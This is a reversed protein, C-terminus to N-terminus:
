LNKVHLKHPKMSQTAIAFNMICHKVYIQVWFTKILTRTAEFVTSKNLEPSKEEAYHM